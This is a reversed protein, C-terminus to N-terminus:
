GDSDDSDLSSCKKSGFLRFAKSVVAGGRRGANQQMSYVLATFSFRRTWRPFDATDTEHLIGDVEADALPKRGVPSNGVRRQSRRQEPPIEKKLRRQIHILGKNVFVSQFPMWALVKPLLHHRVTTGDETEHGDMFKGPTTTDQKSASKEKLTELFSFLYM